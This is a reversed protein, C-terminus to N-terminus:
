LALDESVGDDAQDLIPQLQDIFAAVQQSCRGTFAAPDLTATIEERSLAFAPDAALRAIIDDLSTGGAFTYTGPKLSSEMGLETVRKTFEAVTGVLRARQLDSGVAQAGSGESVVITAEEGEALLEVPTGSCSNFLTLAGWALGGVVVVALVAAFVLPAKSRKPRIYSTDYTRFQREGKAHASRAAHNPRSSYTVQKRHSPM